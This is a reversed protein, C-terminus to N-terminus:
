FDMAVLTTTEAARQELFARAAALRCSRQTSTKPCNKQPRKQSRQSDQTALTARSQESGRSPPHETLASPDSKPVRPSPSPAPPARTHPPTACVMGLGPVSADAPGACSAPPPRLLARTTLSLNPFPGAAPVEKCPPPVGSGATNPLPIDPCSGTGAPAPPTWATGWAVM